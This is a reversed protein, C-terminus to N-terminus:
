MAVIVKIKILLHSPITDDNAFYETGYRVVSDSGVGLVKTVGNSYLGNCFM